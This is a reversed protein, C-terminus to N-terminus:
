FRTLNGGSSAKIFKNDGAKCVLRVESDFKGQFPRCIPDDNSELIEAVSFEQFDRTTMEFMGILKGDAGSKYTILAPDLECPGEGVKGFRKLLIDQDIAILKYLYDLENDYVVLVTDFVLLAGARYLSDSSSLRISSLNVSEKFAGLPDKPDKSTECSQSFLAGIFFFSFLHKKRIFMFNFNMM